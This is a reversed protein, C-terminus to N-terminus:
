SNLDTNKLIKKMNQIKHKIKHYNQRIKKNKEYRKLININDNKYKELEDINYIKESVYDIKDNIDRKKKKDNITLKKSINPMDIGKLEKKLEILQKNYDNRKYIEAKNEDITKIVVKEENDFHDDLSEVYKKLIKDDKYPIDDEDNQMIERVRIRVKGSKDNKNSSPVVNVQPTLLSRIGKEHTVVDDNKTNIKTPEAKEVDKINVQPTLMSELGKKLLKVPKKALQKDKNIDKITQSLEVHKKSLKVPKKALQIDKNYKKSRTRGRSGISDKNITGYLMNELKISM